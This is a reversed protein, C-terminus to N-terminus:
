SLFHKKISESKGLVRASGYNKAVANKLRDYTVSGASPNGIGFTNKIKTSVTGKIVAEIIQGKIEALKAKTTANDSYINHADVAM